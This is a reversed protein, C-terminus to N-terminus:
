GAANHKVLIRENLERGVKIIAERPVSGKAEIYSIKGVIRKTCRIDNRGSLEKKLLIAPLRRATRSLSIIVASSGDDRRVPTVKDVHFCRTQGPSYISREHPPQNRTPCIAFHEDVVEGFIGTIPLSVILSGDEHRRDIYGRIINGKLHLVKDYETITRADLIHKELEHTLARLLSRKPMGLNGPGYKGYVILGNSTLEAFDAGTIKRMSPSALVCAIAEEVTKREVGHLTALEEIIADIQM